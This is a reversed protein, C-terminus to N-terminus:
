YVDKQYRKNKRLETLFQEAEAQTHKGQQQIIQLLADNVDKAMHTADGCVYVYAGEQLWAWISEAQDLLRHQVYVKEAQDRSFAVDLKTLLGSKLYQQWEVQYLFDQTFTRDGFFLWNKGAADRNDREQLFARFPAIGTGPGVMIVPANDDVPLKFNANSEVFVKVNEGEELRQSLFGSAGGVRAAEGDHYEVVGVTLHVEEGVEEPSSAISYLRPTLRRLLSFLQTVTLQTKKEALVDLIQTKGSYARLKERDDVLKLLKKSGSLEAFKTIFQPNSGTIEFHSILAEKLTLTTGDLDCQDDNNLGVRAIIAESLEPSNQYWVGLADGAQYSLGSGELDIEIHRVDKDSDRGTIKQNTLLEATFPNKKSYVSTNNQTIPLPVVDAESSTKFTEKIKLLASQSWEPTVSDYDVDADLRPVIATAGLQSLFQDFDKATQCFFEYSSDGLGLVAYQLNPLKPAKKSQLFEHLVVADDPAEGEGHTSAVIIVHTEKALQKGKYDGSSVVIADIGLAIAEAHLEEAAGKANGTQSAYIITLKSAPQQSVSALIQSGAKEDSPHQAQSLGWLYGSIWALQQPSSTAATQQLQDLQQDNLPSAITANEQQLM